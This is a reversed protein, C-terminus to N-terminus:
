KALRGKAQRGKAERGLARGHLLGIDVRALLALAHSLHDIQLLLEARLQQAHADHGAAKEAARPRRSLRNVAYSQAPVIVTDERRLEHAAPQAVSRLVLRVSPRLQQGVALEGEGCSVVDVDTVEAVLVGSAELLCAECRM